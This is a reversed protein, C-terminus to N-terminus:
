RLFAVYLKCYERVRIKEGKPLDTFDSSLVFSMCKDRAAVYDSYNFDSKSREVAGGFYMVLMSVAFSVIGLVAIPSQEPKYSYLYTVGAGLFVLAAPLVNGAVGVRSHGSLFGISVGLVSFAFLLALIKLFGQFSRQLMLAVLACVFAVLLGAFFVPFLTLFAGWIEGFDNLVQYKDSGDM